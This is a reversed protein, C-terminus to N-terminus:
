GEMMLNVLVLPDEMFVDYKVLSAYTEHEMDYYGIRKDGPQWVIHLDSYNDVEASLRLMKKRGVKMEITDTLAFFDIYRIGYENEPLHLRLNDGSLFNLLATPLHYSRLQQLKNSREHFEEPELSKLYAILEKNKTTVAISYAREGDKETMTIDAGQQILFKALETNGNRVAVTLPTAKYSYVMDAENYNVDAGHDLMWRIIDWEGDQVAMRLTSGGYKKIELGLEQILTLNSRNGYYAQEFAKEKQKESLETIPALSHVYEVLQKDGYRVATHISPKDKDTLSAGYSVLLQAVGLQNLILALELLSVESYKSLKLEEHIDMGAALVATLASENGDYIYGGIKPLTEFNGINGIKYM